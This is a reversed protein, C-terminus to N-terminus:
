LKKDQINTVEADIVVPKFLTKLEDLMLKGEINVNVKEGHLRAYLSSYTELLKIKTSEPFEGWRSKIDDFMSLLELQMWRSDIIRKQLWDIDSQQLNGKNVQV